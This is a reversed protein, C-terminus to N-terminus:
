KRGGRRKKPGEDPIPLARIQAHAPPELIKEIKTDIAERLKAGYSGDRVDHSQDVRAALTAKDAIIKQAKRRVDVPLSQVMESRFIYGTHPKTVAAGFGGAAESTRKQAGLLFLNCSPIKMLALLGGAAGILQAATRSGVVACLNPAMFTMRSEVYDMITARANDLELAMDCAREIASWEADSLPEGNSTAAAVHVMMVSARPLITDLNIKLVDTENGILKVTKVYDFPNTVLRELEAFKSAYHDRVFKHVIAIENDIEAALNNASVILQYEPDDEIHGSVSTRKSQKYHKIQQLVDTMQRSGMMKAVQRVDKHKLMPENAINAENGEIYDDDEDMAGNEAMAMEQADAEAQMNMEEEEEEDYRHPSDNQDFDLDAALEDALSM